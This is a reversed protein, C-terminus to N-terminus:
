KNLRTLTECHVGVGCEWYIQTSSFHISRRSLVREQLVWGRQNLDGLEVDKYFNDIARCVYLKKGSLKSLEVFSRPQRPTLFGDKSTKASTAAVTFYAGRFVQEMRAAEYEWDKKDDQIICLSDIWIYRMGLNKAVVVADRFTRPLREFEISTKLGQINDRLACLKENGQLSGWCHSLAVYPSPEISDSEVLKINDKIDLLRTPMENLTEDDKPRCLDHDLDCERILQKLLLFRAASEVPLL